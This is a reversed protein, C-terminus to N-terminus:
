GEGTGGPGGSRDQLEWTHDVVHWAIRRAAYRAPWRKGALPAGDSPATFLAAIAERQAARTRREAAPIGITAAYAAEAEDVHALLPTRDRGGGRPGKRLAEPAAAAAVDLESWAARLFRVLRQASPGDTPVADAAAVVSPAGFDTTADGPLREVVSRFLM